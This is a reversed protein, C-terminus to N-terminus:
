APSEIRIPKSNTERTEPTRTRTRTRVSYAIILVIIIIFLAIAWVPIAGAATSVGSMESTPTFPIVQLFEKPNKIEEVHEEFGVDMERVEVRPNFHVRKGPKGSTRLSSM